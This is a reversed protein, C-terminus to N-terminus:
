YFFEEAAMSDTDALNLLEDHPLTEYNPDDM